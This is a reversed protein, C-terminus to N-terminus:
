LSPVFGTGPYALVASTRRPRGNPSNRWLRQTSKGRRRVGISQLYEVFFYGRDGIPSGECPARGQQEDRQRDIGRGHQRHVPDAVQRAQQRNRIEGPSRLGGLQM